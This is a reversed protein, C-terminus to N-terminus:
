LSLGVEHIYALSRRVWDDPDPIADGLVGLEFSAVIEDYGFRAAREDIRLWELGRLYEATRAFGTGIPQNTHRYAEHDSLHLHLIQDAMHSLEELGERALAMHGLDVLLGFNARDVDSAMQQASTLDNVLFWVQPEPEQAIFVGKREAYECIQQVFGVARRWADARGVGLTWQGTNLMMQNMGWEVACDVGQCLYQLDEERESESASPINHHPFLLYNRPTLGLRDLERPVRSRDDASLHEPGAHYVGHLDVYRFGLDAVEQLSDFLTARRAIYWLGTLMGVKM